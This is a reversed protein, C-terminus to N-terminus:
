ESISFNQLSLVPAVTTFWTLSRITPLDFDEIAQLEYISRLDGYSAIHRQLNAIQIDTLLYLERLEDVDAANLNLPHEFYYALDEFLNTYDLEQGEDLSNAIEEIRQEIISTKLEDTQAGSFYPMCEFCILLWVAAPLRMHIGAAIM